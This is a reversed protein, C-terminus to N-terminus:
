SCILLLCGSRVCFTCLGLASVEIQLQTTMTTATAAAGAIASRPLPGNATSDLAGERKAAADPDTGVWIPGNSCATLTFPPAATHGASSIPVVV